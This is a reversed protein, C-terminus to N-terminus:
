RTAGPLFKFKSMLNSMLKGGIFVAQSGALAALLEPRVEPFTNTTGIAEIAVGVYGAAAALSAFLMQPRSFLAIQGTSSETLLGRLSLRRSVMWYAIVLALGGLWLIMAASFVWAITQTGM